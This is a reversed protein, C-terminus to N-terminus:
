DLQDRQARRDQLGGRARQAPRARPVLLVQRAPRDRATRRLLAVAVAWALWFGLIELLLRDANGLISMERKTRYALFTAVALAGGLGLVPLATAARSRAATALTVGAAHRM